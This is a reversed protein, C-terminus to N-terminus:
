RVAVESPVETPKAGPRPGVSTRRVAFYLEELTPEHPVVRKVRAGASVLAAVADPIVDLDDLLVRLGGDPVDVSRVGTVRRLAEIGRDEALTIDVADDPWYRRVLDRPAGSVLDAGADLVVVHDALGEAEVLHHTCMVVTHGDGTMERILALVAQASEPDLGSTPEDFLLLEPEHLVARA